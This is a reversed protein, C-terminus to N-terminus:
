QKNSAKNGSHTQENQSMMMTSQADKKVSSKDKSSPKVPVGASRYNAASEEACAKGFVFQKPQTKPAFFQAQQSNSSAQKASAKEAKPTPVFATAMLNMSQYSDDSTDNVSQEAEPESLTLSKSFTTAIKDVSSIQDQNVGVETM